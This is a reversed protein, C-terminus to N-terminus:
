LFLYRPIQIASPSSPLPGNQGQNHKLKKQGNNQKEGAGILAVNGSQRRNANQDEGKSENVDNPQDRGSERRSSPVDANEVKQSEYSNAAQPHKRRAMMQTAM